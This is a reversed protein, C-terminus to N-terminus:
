FYMAFVFHKIIQAQANPMAFPIKNPILKTKLDTVSAAACGIVATSIAILNIILLEDM